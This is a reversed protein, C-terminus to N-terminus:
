GPVAGRASPHDPDHPDHRGLTDGPDSANGVVGAGPSSPGSDPRDLSRALEEMVSSPRGGLEELVIRRYWRYERIAEARNGEAAYARM